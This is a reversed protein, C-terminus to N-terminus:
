PGYGEKSKRIAPIKRAPAALGVSLGLRSPWAENNTVGPSQTVWSYGWAIPIWKLRRKRCAHAVNPSNKDELWWVFVWTRVAIIHRHQNQPSHRRKSKYTSVSTASFCVAMVKLDLFPSFPESIEPEMVSLIGQGASSSDVEWSPRQGM